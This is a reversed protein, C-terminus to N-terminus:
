YTPAELQEIYYEVVGIEKIRDNINRNCDLVCVGPRKVVEEYEM